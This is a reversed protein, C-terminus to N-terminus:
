HKTPATTACTHVDHELAGGDILPQCCCAHRHPLCPLLANIAACGALLIDRLTPAGAGDALYPPCRPFPLLHAHARTTPTPHTPTPYPKAKCSAPQKPSALPLPTPFTECRHMHQCHHLATSRTGPAFPPVLFRAGPCVKLAASRQGAAQTCSLRRAGMLSLHPCTNQSSQTDSHNSRSRLQGMHLAATRGDFM